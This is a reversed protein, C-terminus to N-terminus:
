DGRRQMVEEKKNQFDESSMNAWDTKNTNTSTKTAPAATAGDVRNKAEATELHGKIVPDDKLIDEYDKGSGKSLSKITQFTNDDVEPHANRFKLDTNEETINNVSEQVKEFEERSVGDQNEAQKRKEYGKRNHEKEDNKGDQSNNDSQNDSNDAPKNESSNNDDNNQNDTQNEDGQNDSANNDDTKHEDSM